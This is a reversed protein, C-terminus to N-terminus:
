LPQVEIVEWTQIWIDGDKVPVGEICTQTDPDYEPQPTPYVAAYEIDDVVAGPWNECVSTNPHRAHFDVPYEAVADNEIVAYQM